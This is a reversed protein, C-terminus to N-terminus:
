VTKPTSKIKYSSRLTNHLRHIMIYHLLSTIKIDIYRSDECKQYTVRGCISSIQEAENGRVVKEVENWTKLFKEFHMESYM